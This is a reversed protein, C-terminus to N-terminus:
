SFREREMKKQRVEGNKLFYTEKVRSVDDKTPMGCELGLMRDEFISSVEPFYTSDGDLIKDDINITLETRLLTEFYESPNSDYLQKLMRAEEEADMKAMMEREKAEQIEKERETARKKASEKQEISVVITMVIVMVPVIIAFFSIVGMIHVKLIIILSFIYYLLLVKKLM